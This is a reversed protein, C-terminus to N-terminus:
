GGNDINFPNKESMSDIEFNFMPSHFAISKVVDSYKMLHGCNPKLYTLFEFASLLGHDFSGISKDIIDKQNPIINAIMDKDLDLNMDGYSTIAGAINYCGRISNLTSSLIINLQSIPYAIDHFICALTLKDLSERSMRFPQKSGIARALIAVRIIHNLHDRYFKGELSKTLVLMTELKYLASALRGIRVRGRADCDEDLIKLTFYSLLQAARIRHKEHDSTENWKEMEKLEDQNWNGLDILHKDFLLSTLVTSLDSPM